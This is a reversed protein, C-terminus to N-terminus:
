IRIYGWGQKLRLSIEGVASPAVETDPLLRVEVGKARLNRLTQGCATLELDPYKERLLGIRRAYPSADARL